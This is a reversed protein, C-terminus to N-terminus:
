LDSLKNLVKSINRSTADDVPSNLREPSLHGFDVSVTVGLEGDITM